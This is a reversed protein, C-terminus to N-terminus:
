SHKLKNWTFVRFVNVTTSFIRGFKRSQNLRKPNKNNTMPLEKTRKWTDMSVEGLCNWWPSIPWVCFLQKGMPWCWKGMPLIALTVAGITKRVNENGELRQIKFDRINGAFCSCTIDNSTKVYVDRPCAHAISFCVTARLLKAAPGPSVM